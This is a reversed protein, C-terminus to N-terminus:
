APYPSRPSSRCPTAPSSRRPAAARRRRDAPTSVIRGEGKQVQAYIAAQVSFSGYGAVDIGNDTQGALYAGRQFTAVAIQGNANDFDFGLNKAGTKTLEVFMTELVVSQVPVDIEAIKAKFARWSSRALRQPNDREAEPRGRHRRRHASGPRHRVRKPELVNPPPVLNGGGPQGNNGIGSSGFAPEQPTFNDNPKIAPGNSLLGVVESIDAYKLPVVLFEDEGSKEDVHAPLPGAPGTAEVSAQKAPTIVVVLSKGGPVPQATLHIPASGAFTITLADDHQEFQLGTLLGHLSPAISAGAGRATNELRMVPHPDDNTLISFQTLIQSFTFAVRTEGSSTTNVTVATLSTPGVM